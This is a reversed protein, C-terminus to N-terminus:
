KEVEEIKLRPTGDPTAHVAFHNAYDSMCRANFRIQKLLFVAESDLLNEGYLYDICKELDRRMTDMCLAVEGYPRNVERENSM